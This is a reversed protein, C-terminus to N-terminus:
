LVCYSSDETGKEDVIDNGSPGRYEYNLGSQPVDYLMKGNDAYFTMSKIQIDHFIIGQYCPIKFNVVAIEFGNTNLLEALRQAERYYPTASNKCNPADKVLYINEMVCEGPVRTVTHTGAIMGWEEGNGDKLVFSSPYLQPTPKSGIKHCDDDFVPEDGDFIKEEWFKSYTDYTIKCKM